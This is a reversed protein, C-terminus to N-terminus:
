CSSQQAERGGVLRFGPTPCSQVLDALSVFGGPGGWGSSM